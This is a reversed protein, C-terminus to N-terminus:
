KETFLAVATFQHRNAGGTVIQEGCALWAHAQLGQGADQTVGLTLTHPLHRRRLMRSAALAQALCNSQWPTYQSVAGITRRVQDVAVAAVAVATVEAAPVAAQEAAPDSLPQIRLQWLNVVWSFPLM